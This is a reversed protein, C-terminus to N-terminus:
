LFPKERQSIANPEEDRLESFNLCPTLRAKGNCYTYIDIDIHTM